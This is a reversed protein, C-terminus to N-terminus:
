LMLHTVNNTRGSHIQHCQIDVIECNIEDFLCATLTRFLKSMNRVLFFHTFPPFKSKCINIKQSIHKTIVLSHHKKPIPPHGLCVGQVMKEVARGILCYDNGVTLRTPM